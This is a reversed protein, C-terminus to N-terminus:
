GFYRSIRDLDCDTDDKEKYYIELFTVRNEIEEFAFIVRIGSRVGKGKLSKSAFKKAKFIPTQIKLRNIRVCSGNDIDRCFFLEIANKKFVEIDDKLTPFRRLLKKLEKDFEPIIKYRIKKAM